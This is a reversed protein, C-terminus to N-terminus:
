DEIRKKSLFEVINNFNKELQGKKYLLINLKEASEAPEEEYDHAFENRVERLEKWSEYDKIIELQELRNFCQSDYISDVKRKEFLM